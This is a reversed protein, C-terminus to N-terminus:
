SNKMDRYLSTAMRATVVVAILMLVWLLWKLWPTQAQPQLRQVGGRLQPVGLSVVSGTPKYAKERQNLIGILENAPAEAEYNGWALKYPGNNNALFLMEYQPYALELSPPSQLAQAPKYWWNKYRYRSIDIPTNAAVQQNPTLNHQQVNAKILRKNDFDSASAFVDGRILSESQAPVLNFQVPSVQSPITFALMGPDETSTTLANATHWLYEPKTAPQYVGSVGNLKFSQIANLPTLRIYRQNTPLKKIRRWDSNGTNKLSLNKRANITVWNDLDNAVEVRLELIQTEPEHSWDLELQRIGLKMQEETLEIIYDQRTQQVPLVETTELQPFNDNATTNNRKTVKKTRLNMLTNFNHFSLDVKKITPEVERKRIWAPLTKGSADFVAMDGLDARTLSLVVEVPILVSQLSEDSESLLAEYAYNDPIVPSSAFASNCLLLLGTCMLRCTSSINRPMAKFEILSKNM